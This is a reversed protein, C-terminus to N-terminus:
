QINLEDIRKIKKYSITLKHTLIDSNSYDYNTIHNELKLEKFEIMSISDGQADFHTLTLIDSNEVKNILAEIWDFVQGKSDDFVEIFLLKNIYDTKLLKMWWRINPHNLNNLTWRFTRPIIANPMTAPNSAGMDNRTKPKRKEKIKCKVENEM